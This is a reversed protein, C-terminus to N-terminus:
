KPSNLWEIVDFRKRVEREGKLATTLVGVFPQSAYKKLWVTSKYKKHLDSATFCVKNKYPLEQFLRIHEELCGDRDTMAFFLNDYNIREVRRCWKTIAEDESKYHLFHIEIGELLGIPYWGNDKRVANAEDYQSVEVFSMPQNIYYKLRAAFRVFCPAYFFLGVTPTLYERNLVQYISGGWCNSSIITFNENRITKKCREVWRRRQFKLIRKRLNNLYDM